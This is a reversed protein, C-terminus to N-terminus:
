VHMGQLSSASRRARLRFGWVGEGALLFIRIHYLWGISAGSRSVVTLSKTGYSYNFTATSETSATYRVPSSQWRPPEVQNVNDVLNPYINSFSLTSNFRSELAPKPRLTASASILCSSISVLKNWIQESFWLPVRPFM